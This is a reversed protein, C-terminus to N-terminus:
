IEKGHRRLAERAEALTHVKGERIQQESREKLALAEPSDLWEEFKLQEMLERKKEPSLQAVLSFVQEDTLTINLMPAKRSM